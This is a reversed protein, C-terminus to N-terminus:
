KKVEKIQVKLQQRLAMAFEILRMKYESIAGVAVGIVYIGIYIADQNM